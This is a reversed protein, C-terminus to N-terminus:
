FAYHSSAEFKEFRGSKEALKIRFIVGPVSNLDATHFPWHSTLKVTESSIMPLSRAMLKEIANKREKGEQIEEFEGMAIVSQWNAMNEFVDVEFCVNPNHRMMELKMGEATHAYINNGDYAYSIPVVYTKGNYHCGIRGVAQTNLVQEIQQTNLHGLM